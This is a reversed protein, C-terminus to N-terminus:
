DNLISEVDATLYNARIEGDLLGMAVMEKLAWKITTRDKETIAQNLIVTLCTLRNNKDIYVLDNFEKPMQFSQFAFFPKLSVYASLFVIYLKRSARNSAHGSLYKFIAVTLDTLAPDNRQLIQFKRVALKFFDKRLKELQDPSTDCTSRLSLQPHTLFFEITKVYGEKAVNIDTNECMTVSQQIKQLRLLRTVITKFDGSTLGNKTRFIAQLIREAAVENSQYLFAAFLLSLTTRLLPSKLEHTLNEFKSVSTASQGYLALLSNIVQPEKHLEQPFHKDALEVAKEQDHGALKDIIKSFLSIYKQDFAPNRAYTQKWLQSCRLINGNDLNAEILQATLATFPPQDIQGNQAVLEDYCINAFYPVVPGGLMSQIATVKVHIDVEHHKFTELLKCIAYSHYTKRNPTNVSLSRLVAALTAQDIIANHQFLKLACLAAVLPEGTRLNERVLISALHAHIQQSSLADKDLDQLTRSNNKDIIGEKDMLILFKIAQDERGNFILICIQDLVFAAMLKSTKFNAFIIKQTQHDCVALLDDVLTFKEADYVKFCDM